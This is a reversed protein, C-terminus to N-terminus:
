KPRQNKWYHFAGILSESLIKEYSPRDKKSPDVPVIIGYQENYWDFVEQRKQSEEKNLQAIESDLAPNYHRGGPYFSQKYENRNSLNRNKEFYEVKVEDLREERDKKLQEIKDKFQSLYKEESEITEKIRKEYDTAELFSHRFDTYADIYDSDAEFRVMPDIHKFFDQFNEASLEFEPNEAFFDEDLTEELYDANPCIAVIKQILERTIRVSDIKEKEKLGQILQQDKIEGM